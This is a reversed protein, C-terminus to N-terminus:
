PPMAFGHQEWVARAANSRLDELLRRAEATRSGAILAAPYVIPAHTGPPFTDVIRVGRDALADTRYVIGLPAEGRSVLMLAARVNDTRALRHEVQPWAGLKELAQRGYKGAPVSDPNAIALRDRGLAGAFDAGPGIKLTTTSGAPAVLVLANHLLTTRTGPSVRKRSELYDMWDLDASVFVDAPAGAEIQKALANSGAYVVTVKDGTRAEFARAQDDMAEKLSAAAFVTVTAAKVPAAALGALLLTALALHAIAPRLLRPISPASRM